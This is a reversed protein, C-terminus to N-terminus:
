RREGTLRRRGTATQTGRTSGPLPLEGPRGCADCLGHRHHDTLEESFVELASEVLRVAGDPHRCAGRGRTLAILRAIAQGAGRGASGAAVAAFADAIGHLGNVCPGCQGASEDALWRMLRATEAAPCADTSLLAIVGAGLTAGHPALHDDSLGLEHLRGGDIWTGAYGGVLAARVPSALGGAADILASLSAGHEIEYVGPYAIAGSLTVLVSGPRSATGLERFWAAGHRAILAAHALTEANSVLTPAGGVGREFPMPPTYTPLAPGGNLFSVLASEQGTVYGSPTISLHIEIGDTGARRRESIAREAGAEGGGAECVCLIMEKAGLAEAALVGGDIVLHPLAQLLTRDKMSAPEGETANVLVIPRGGSTAVARMKTAVPFGAGGRGSLGARDLEDILWSAERRSRGRASPAPGHVALHDELALVGEAPIGSLLRPLTGRRTPEQLQTSM